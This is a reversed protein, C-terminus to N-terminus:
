GKWQPLDFEPRVELNFEFTMPGEEPLDVAELDLDPESIAALKQEESIQELSQMLLSSKVQQAVEKHFRHEVLKRPARGPRFGPVQVTPMLEKLADAFYRDIDERPVTVTLHRECTGRKDIKVSLNLKPKAEEGAEVDAAPEETNTSMISTDLVARSS